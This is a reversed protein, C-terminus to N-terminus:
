VERITERWEHVIIPNGVDLGKKKVGLSAAAADVVDFVVFRLATRDQHQRPHLGRPRGFAAVTAANPIM